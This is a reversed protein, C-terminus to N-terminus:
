DNRKGFLELLRIFLNIFDLYLRFAGYVEAKEEGVSNMLYKVKNVDYAIYGAFVLIGIMTLALDATSSKIFIMNIVSFIFMSLLAVFLITGLKTLDKKTVYGYFALVGFIISTVLFISIISSIKFVIFIVSFTIGTMISYVIYLIKTTIPNMKAIRASLVVALILEVIFIPWIGISVLDAMLYINQSLCYGTVFTVLLGIFLWTFMKSYVQNNNEM